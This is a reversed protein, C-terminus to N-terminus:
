ALIQSLLFDQTFETAGAADCTLTVTFTVDVVPDNCDFPAGVTPGQWIVRPGSTDTATGFSDYTVMAPDASNDTVSVINLPQTSDTSLIDFTVTCQAQGSVPGTVVNGIIADPCMPPPPPPPPPDVPSTQGHAPTLVANIVPKSWQSPLLSALASAGVAGKLLRRRNSPQPNNKKETM